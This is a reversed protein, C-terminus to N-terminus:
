FPLVLNLSIILFNSFILISLLNVLFYLAVIESLISAIKQQEEQSPIKILLSYIENRSIGPKSTVIAYNELKMNQIYYFLFLLNLTTEKNTIYYVTDIPFFDGKEFFVNGVSGKRSVIIAPGHVIAKSHYGIIGGSGYVANGYNDRQEETLSSGYELQIKKHFKTIKWKEPIEIEKKFYWRIKKFKTHGIGRTLLQQMLGKKLKETKDIIKQTKEILADVDSLISAIQQQEKLIPLIILMEAIMNMRISNVTNKATMSMSRAFFNNSFYLYFFYGDLRDDFDSIKYVRQHFDFKDNIYHFIKGINGDGATLVAEGNYSYSDIREIKQSRIFFPFKGNEIKDQTNKSGTTIKVHNKIKSVCWEEPIEIENDLYWKVKKYGNRSKTTHNM